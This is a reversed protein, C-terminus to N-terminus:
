KNSGETLSTLVAAHEVEVAEAAVYGPGDVGGVLPTIAMATVVGTGDNAPANAVTVLASAPVSATIAAAVLAATSTIASGGNTALHVTIVSGVVSVSLSASPTGPNVYQITVLNGNIGLGVVGTYVLDNNTGALATTMTAAVENVHLTEVKAQVWCGRGAFAPGTAFGSVSSPLQQLIPVKILRLTRTAPRLLTYTQAIMAVSDVFPTIRVQVQREHSIGVYQYFYAAEGGVGAVAARDTTASLNYLVGNDLYGSEVTLLAALSHAGLLLIPTSM